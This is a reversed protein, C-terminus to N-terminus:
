GGISSMRADSAGARLPTILDFEQNSLLCPRLKGGAAGRRALGDDGVQLVLGPRQRQHLIGQGLQEFRSLTM